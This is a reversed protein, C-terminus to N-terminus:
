KGYAEKQNQAVQPEPPLASHGSVAPDTTQGGEAGGEPFPMQSSRLLKEVSFLNEIDTHVSIMKTKLVFIYGHPHPGILM